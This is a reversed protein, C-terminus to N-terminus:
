KGERMNMMVVQHGNLRDGLITITSMARDIERLDSSTLEVQVAGINEELSSNGHTRKQMMKGKMQDNDKRM